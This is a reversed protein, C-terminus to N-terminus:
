GLLRALSSRTIHYCGCSAEELRPRDVVNVRGRGYRIAGIAQLAGMAVTVGARRVGLMLALFEHTMEFSDGDVSDHTMLLWRACREEVTHLTSCAVHQALQDSYYQAYRLLVRRVVPREDVIRRFADASLRWADGPVQVMVLYPMSDAANLVPLGVFGEPGITAVEISGGEQETAIVSGVGERIFLIDRIPAHPEILVDKLHLRVPTLRPLLLAYEEVPLATLLRNREAGHAAALGEERWSEVSPAPRALHSGDGSDQSAPRQHSHDNDAM